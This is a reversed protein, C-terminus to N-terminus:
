HSNILNKLQTQINEISTDVNETITDKKNTITAKRDNIRTYANSNEIRTKAGQVRTAIKSSIETNDGLNNIILWSSNTFIMTIYQGPQIDRSFDSSQLDLIPKTGHITQKVTSKNWFHLQIGDINNDPLTITSNVISEIIILKGTSVDDNIKFSTGVRIIGPATNKNFDHNIEERVDKKIEHTILTDFSKNLDFQFPTINGTVNNDITPEPSKEITEIDTKLLSQGRKQRKTIKIPHYTRDCPNPVPCINEDCSDSSSSSPTSYYTYYVLLIITFIAIIVVIILIGVSATDYAM